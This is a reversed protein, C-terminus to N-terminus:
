RSPPPDLARLGDLCNPNKAPTVRAATTALLTAASLISDASSVSLERYGDCIAAEAV